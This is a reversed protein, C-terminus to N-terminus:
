RGAAARAPPGPPSLEYCSTAVPRAAATHTPCRHQTAPRLRLVFTPSCAVLEDSIMSRGGRSYHEDTEAEASGGRWASRSSPRREASKRPRGGRRREMEQIMNRIELVRGRILVADLELERERLKLAELTIDTM